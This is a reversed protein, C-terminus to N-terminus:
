AAEVAVNADDLVASEIRKGLEDILGAAREVTEMQAEESWSTLYPISFGSTDLGIAGCVTFAVSEVVLEEEAYSLVTAEDTELHLLAHALEHVFTEVRHNVSSAESLAIRRDAARFYGGCGEALREISVECELEGARAELRPLAWGLEDGEPEVIPPDLPVPEAPAPLPEVQSRDFM